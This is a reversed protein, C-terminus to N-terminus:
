SILITLHLYGGRLLPRVDRTLVIIIVTDGVDGGGATLQLAPM